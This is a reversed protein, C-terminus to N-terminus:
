DKKQNQRRRANLWSGAALGVAIGGAGTMSVVNNVYLVIGLLLGGVFGVCAEQLPTLQSWDRKAM